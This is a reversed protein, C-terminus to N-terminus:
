QFSTTSFACVNLQPQLLPMVNNALWRRIPYPSQDVSPIECRTIFFQTLIDHSPVAWAGPASGVITINFQRTSLNGEIVKIGM